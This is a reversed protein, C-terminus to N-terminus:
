FNKANKKFKGYTAGVAITTSGMPNSADETAKGQLNFGVTISTKQVGQLNFGVTINPSGAPWRTRQIRLWM